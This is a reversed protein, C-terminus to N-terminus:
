SGRGGQTEHLSQLAEHVAQLVKRNEPYTLRELAERFPLRLARLVESKQLKPEQRGIRGAFFVVEKPRGQPLVYTIRWEQPLLREIALGTEEAVERQATEEDTEGPERHGKPFDWHGARHQLILYRGEDDVPVFGCSYDKTM